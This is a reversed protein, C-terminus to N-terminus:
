EQKGAHFAPRTKLASGGDTAFCIHGHRSRPRTENRSISPGGQRTAAGHAPTLLTTRMGYFAPGLEGYLKRGIRFLGSEVLCPLAYPVGVGPVLAGERFLPAADDLLGLYALSQEM